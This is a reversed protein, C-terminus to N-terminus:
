ASHWQCGLVFAILLSIIFESEARTKFPRPKLGRRLDAFNNAGKPASTSKHGRTEAVQWSRSTFLLVITQAPSAPSRERHNPPKFRPPSRFTASRM